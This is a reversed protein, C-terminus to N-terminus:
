EGKIKENQIPSYDIKSQGNVIIKDFYCKAGTAITIDEVNQIHFHLHPESSNGSNGCLGLLQGQKIQQGQKVKITNQKFHCLVIYEQNVTKIIITNGPIYYTNTEGIKNDKIGDVVLVIEGDCPSILEKAFAFYDENIKGDTRFTKGGPDRILIDFAYKQAEVDYHHNQERTDGGWVVDWEGKFPLALKTTDRELKPLSEDKFPTVSISNIKSDKDLSINLSFLATEFNVKYIAFSEKHKIFQKNTIKGAQSKLGNFFQTIRQLTLTKQTESSLLSFISDYNSSNYYNEIKVAVEKYNPKETQGFLNSTILILTLILVINRMINVFTLTDM